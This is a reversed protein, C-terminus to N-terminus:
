PSYVVLLRPRRGAVRLRIVIRRGRLASAGWEFHDADIFHLIHTTGPDIKTDTAEFDPSSISELKRLPWRHACYFLEWYTLIFPRVGINRILIQNGVDPIGALNCSVNIRFRDRWLEWLKITALLTSLTAGWWAVPSISPEAM